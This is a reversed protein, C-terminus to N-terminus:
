AKRRERAMRLSKEATVKKRRAKKLKEQAVEIQAEAQMIDNKAKAIEKEKEKVFALYAGDKLPDKYKQVVFTEIPAWKPPLDSRASDFLAELTEQPVERGKACYYAIENSLYFAESLALVTAGDEGCGAASIAVALMPNSHQDKPGRRPLGITIYPNEDGHQIVAEAKPGSWNVHVLTAEDPEVGGAHLAAQVVRKIDTTRWHTKNEITIPM